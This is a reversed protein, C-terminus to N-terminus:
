EVGAYSVVTLNRIFESRFGKKNRLVATGAKRDVTIVRYEIDSVPTKVIAGVCIFKNM